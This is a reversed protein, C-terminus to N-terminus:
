KTYIGFEYLSFTSGECFTWEVYRACITGYLVIYRSTGTTGLENWTTGDNSYRIASGSIPSIYAYLATIDTYTKGLDIIMKAGSIGNVYWYGNRNEIGDFLNASTGRQSSPTTSLTATWGSKDSEQSGEIDSVGAGSNILREETNISLYIINRNTSIYNDSGNVASIRVPMLYTEETLSSLQNDAISFNISDSSLTRGAPIVLKTKDFNILNEPVSAYSTENALNYSEIYSNDVEITVELSSSAEKTCYVPFKLSVNGLSGIPTHIITFNEGSLTTTQERLYVKNSPDGMVDYSDDDGCSQMTCVVLLILLNIIYRYKISINM